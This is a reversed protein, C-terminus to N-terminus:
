TSVKERLDQYLPTQLLNTDCYEKLVSIRNNRILYNLHPGCFKYSGKIKNLCQSGLGKKTLAICQGTDLKAMREVSQILCRVYGSDRGNGEWAPQKGYVHHSCNVLFEIGGLDLLLELQKPYTQFRLVLVTIMLEFLQELTLQEFSRRKLSQYLTEADDYLNDEYRIPYSNKMNGKQLALETPATLWALSRSGSWINGPKITM